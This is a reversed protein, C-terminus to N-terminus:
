FHPFKFYVLKMWLQIVAINLMQNGQIIEFVDQMSIYLPIGGKDVGFITEDWCIACPSDFMDHSNSAVRSNSECKDPTARTAPDWSNFWWSKTIESVKWLETVLIIFHILKFLM